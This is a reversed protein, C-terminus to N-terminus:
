DNHNYQYELPKNKEYTKITELIHIIEEAQPYHIWRDESIYAIREENTKNIIDQAENTLIMSSM